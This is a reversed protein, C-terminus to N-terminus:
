LSQQTIRLMAPAHPSRDFDKRTFIGDFSLVVEYSQHLEEVVRIKFPVSRKPLTTGDYMIWRFVKNINQYSYEYEVRDDPHSSSRQIVPLREPISTGPMKFIRVSQQALVLRFTQALLLRPWESRTQMIYLLSNLVHERLGISCVISQTISHQVRTVSCVTSTSISLHRLSTLRQLREARLIDWKELNHEVRETLTPLIHMM